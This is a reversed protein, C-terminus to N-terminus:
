DVCQPDYASLWIYFKSAITGKLERKAIRLGLIEHALSKKALDIIQIQREFVEDPLNDDTDPVLTACLSDLKSTYQGALFFESDSLQLYKFADFNWFSYAPPADKFIPTADTMLKYTEMMLKNKERTAVQNSVGFLVTLSELQGNKAAIMNDLGAKKARLLGTTRNDEPIGEVYNLVGQAIEEVAFLQAYVIGLSMQAVESDEETQAANLRRKSDLLLATAFTNHMTPEVWDKIQLDGIMSKNITLLEDILMNMLQEQQNSSESDLYLYEDLYTVAHIVRVEIDNPHKALLAQLEARGQSYNHTRFTEVRINSAQQFPSQIVKKASRCSIFSLLGAFIFYCLYRSVHKSYQYMYQYKHGM